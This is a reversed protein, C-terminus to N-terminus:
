RNRDRCTMQMVPELGERLIMLAAAFSSIRVVGTQNDTINYADAVGKLVEAKKLVVAPDCDMPPGIEATAAFEGAALIRELNSGSKMAGMEEAMRSRPWRM